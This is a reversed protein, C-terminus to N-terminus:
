AVLPTRELADRRALEAEAAALRAHAEDRIAEAMVIIVKPPVDGDEQVEAIMQAEALLDAESLRKISRRYRISASNQKAM